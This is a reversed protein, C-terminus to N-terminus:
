HKFMMGTDVKGSWREVDSVLARRVENPLHYWILGAHKEDQGIEVLWDRQIPKDNRWFFQTLKLLDNSGCGKPIARKPIICAGVNDEKDRCKKHIHNPRKVPRNCVLCRRAKNM